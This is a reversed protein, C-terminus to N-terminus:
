VELDRIIPNEDFSSDTSALVASQLHRLQPLSIKEIQFNHHTVLVRVGRVDELADNIMKYAMEIDTPSAPRTESGVRVVLLTGELNNQKEVDVFDLAKAIGATYSYGKSELHAQNTNFFAQKEKYWTETKKQDEGSPEAICYTIWTRCISCNEIENTEIDKNCLGGSKELREAEKKRLKDEINKVKDPPM